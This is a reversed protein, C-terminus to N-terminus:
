CKFNNFSLFFNLVIMAQALYEWNLGCTQKNTQKKTKKKKNKKHL